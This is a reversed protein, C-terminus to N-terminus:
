LNKFLGQLQPYPMSGESMPESRGSELFARALKEAQGWLLQPIGSGASLRRVGLAGLEAAAPLGPWAMVNVPLSVGAVVAKIAEPEHLAPVFLGDTGASRYLTGRTITEGLRAPVDVLGALFVDTRANVFIDLGAKAAAQRIAEIKAALLSPSDPGDEINIGSVGVDILRLALDAVTHPNDSYGNEIDVSLPVKLVRVMNAAVDIVREVPLVRNDPYGMAWAVGASTTAIAPAGLSEFLRASGADWANPLRLPLTNVHLERFKQTLESM